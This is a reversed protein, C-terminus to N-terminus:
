PELSALFRNTAKRNPLVFVQKEEKVAALKRMIGPRRTLRYTAIYHLFQWDLREPCDAVMDPRTTGRYQWWRKIAGYLCVRTPYDLFIISDAERIRADMTSGYNGDM